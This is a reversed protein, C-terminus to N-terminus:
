ETRQPNRKVMRWIRTDHEGVIDAVSKVPMRKCLALTFAEFFHTFGSEPRSWPVKVTKVGCRPCDIRPVNAHLYTKHEFFNLHRWQHAKTDYVKCPNGCAPCPFESGRPFHIHIHLVGEELNFEM